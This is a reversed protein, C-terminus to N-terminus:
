YTYEELSDLAYEMDEYSEWVYQKADFIYNNCGDITEKLNEIEQQLEYNENQLEDIIDQEWCGALTIAIIWLVFLILKNKM